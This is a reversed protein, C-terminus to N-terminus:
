KGILSSKQVEDIEVKNQLEVQLEFESAKLNKIEETFALREKCQNSIIENKNSLALAIKMDSNELEINSRNLSQAQAQAECFEELQTNKATLEELSKKLEEKLELFL